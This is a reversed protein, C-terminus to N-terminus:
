RYHKRGNDAINTHNSEINEESILLYQQTEDASVPQGENKNKNNNQNRVEAWTGSRSLIQM